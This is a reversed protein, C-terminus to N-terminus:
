TIIGNALRCAPMNNNVVITGSCCLQEFITVTKLFDKKIKYCKFCKEFDNYLMKANM